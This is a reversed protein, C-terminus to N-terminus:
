AVGHRLEVADIVGTQRLLVELTASPTEQRLLLYLSELRAEVLLPHLSASSFTIEANHERKFDECVGLYTATKCAECAKFDWKGDVESIKIFAFLFVATLM